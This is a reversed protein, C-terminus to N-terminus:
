GGLKSSDTNPPLSALMKQNEEFVTKIIHRLENLDYFTEYNM